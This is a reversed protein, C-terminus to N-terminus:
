EAGDMDATLCAAFDTAVTILPVLRYRQRNRGTLNLIEFDDDAESM